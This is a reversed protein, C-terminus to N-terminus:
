YDLQRYVHKHNKSPDPIPGGGGNNCNFGHKISNKQTISYRELKAIGELYIYRDHDDESVDSAPQVPLLGIAFKEPSRGMAPHLRGSTRSPDYKENHTDCYEAGYAHEKSRRIPDGSVGIYREETTLKKIVYAFGEMKEQQAKKKFSPTLEPRLHGEQNMKYPYYKEPTYPATEAKPVAYIAPKEESHSLGGGGGRHDNYLQCVTRKYDIFLTECENLNDKPHLLYLIGVEFNEPHDKVDTLFAKRGPKTVRLESGVKNFETAYNRCREMLNGGTKGILFRLKEKHRFVYILRKFASLKIPISFRIKNKEDRFLRFWQNPQGHMFLEIQEAELRDHVPISPFILETSLKGKQEERHEKDVRTRKPSFDDLLHKGEKETKETSLEGFARKTVRETRVSLSSESTLSYTPGQSDQNSLCSLNEKNEFDFQKTRELNFFHNVGLM